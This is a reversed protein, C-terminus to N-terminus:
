DDKSDRGKSSLSRERLLAPADTFRRTASRLRHTLEQGFSVLDLCRNRTSRFVYHEHLFFLRGIGALEHRDRTRPTSGYVSLAHFLIDTRRNASSLTCGAANPKLSSFATQASAVMRFYGAPRWCDATMGSSIRACSCSPQTVLAAMSYTAFLSSM